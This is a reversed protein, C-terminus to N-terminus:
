PYHDSENLAIRVERAFTLLAAGLLGLAVVFLVGVIQEHRIGVFASAFALIVLVTTCIGSGVALYIAKNMLQARHKLRPIDAKLRARPSDDDAIMNLSRVRDIIGDMRAILISVFGAVATLLFAPATAHSIVQSLHSLDTAEPQMQTRDALLPAERRQSEDASPGRGNGVWGTEHRHGKADCTARSTLREGVVAINAIPAPGM